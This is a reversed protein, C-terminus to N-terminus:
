RWDVYIAKDMWPLKVTSYGWPLDDLLMDFAKSQVILKWSDDQLQLQAERQLFTERLGAISTNKMKPWNAIVGRLLKESMDREEDSIDIGRVIPIGAKVGCLVKNLVLLYEPTETSDDLIYQLLHVGREASDRDKFKREAILNLSTFYRQLYPALLVLGANHVYIDELIEPEEEEEAWLYPSSETDSLENKMGTKSEANRLSSQDASLQLDIEQHSVERGGTGPGDIREGSALALRQESNNLIMAIRVSAVHTTATSSATVSESLLQLFEAESRVSSRQKLYNSLGRVFSVENFSQRQILLYNFIFQWKMQHLLDPEIAIDRAKDVCAMTLLDAYLVVKFHDAPKLLLMIKVLLSEPLISVLRDSASKDQLSESLLRLLATPHSSLMLEITNTISDSEHPKINFHGLLFARILDVTNGSMALPPVNERGKLDNEFASSQANEIDQLRASGMSRHKGMRQAKHLSQFKDAAVSELLDLDDPSFLEEIHRVKNGILRKFVTLFSPGSSGSIGPLAALRERFETAAFAYKSSFSQFFALLLKRQMAEPLSELISILPLRGANVEQNFRHLKWPYNEILEHLLRVVQYSLKGPLQDASSVVNVLKEYLLYARILELQELETTGASGQRQVAQAKRRSQGDVERLGEPNKNPSLSSSFDSKGEMKRRSEGAHLYARIEILMALLEQVAPNTSPKATLAENISDLVSLVSQNQHAAMQRVLSVLYSKKNFQSGREVLLYTLTFEWTLDRVVRPQLDQKKDLGRGIAPNTVTKFIAEANAPEILVVIQQLMPNSFSTAINRRVEKHQGEQYLMHTFWSSFQAILEDWHQKLESTRANRIAAILAHRITEPPATSPRGPESRGAQKERGTFENTSGNFRGGTNQASVDSSTLGTPLGSRTELAATSQRSSETSGVLKERDSFENADGKFRGDTNQASVDSSTLGTPLESRAEPAATSQRSSESRDVQKERGSFEDANGRIESDTKQESADSRTLGTPLEGKLEFLIDLLEKRLANKVSTPEILTIISDYLELVSVNIHAAMQWMMSAIYAKRNFRSGRDVILYTLTFEWLSRKAQSEEMSLENEAAMYLKPESVVQDIFGYHTPELVRVIDRIMPEEFRHAIVRRVQAAQGYRLTVSKLLDSHRALLELWVSKIKRISGTKMAEVLQGKFRALREESSRSGASEDGALNLSQLEKTAAADIMGTSEAQETAARLLQYLQNRNGQSRAHQLLQKLVLSPHQPLSKAIARVIQLVIQEPTSISTKNSTAAAFLLLETWLQIEYARSTIGFSRGSLTRIGEVVTRLEKASVGLAQVVLLTMRDLPFQRTLRYIVESQNPVSSLFQLLEIPKEALVKEFLEDLYESRGAAANWPLSGTTLFKCILEFESQQKSLKRASSNPNHRLGEIEEYLRNRLHTKLKDQFDDHFYAFSVEGLDIELEEFWLVSQDDSVENFVDEVAALLRSKVFDEFDTQQALAIEESPYTIKFVASEIYHREEM